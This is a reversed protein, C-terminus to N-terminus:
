LIRWGPSLPICFPKGSTLQQDGNKDEKRYIRGGGGWAGVGMCIKNKGRWVCEKAGSCVYGWWTCVCVCVYMYVCVYVCMCVCVCIGVCMCVCVCVCVYVNAFM